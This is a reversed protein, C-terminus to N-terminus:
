LNNRIEGKVIGAIKRCRHIRTEEKKADLIYSIYRRRTSPTEKEFAEMAEDEMLVEAIFDPVEVPKSKAQKEKEIEEDLNDLWAMDFFKLGHETMREQELLDRVRIKNSLSWNSTKLRPAFYQLFRKDDCKHTVADIWGYCLASRVAEEYIIGEEEYGKKYMYIDMGDALDHNIKLWAEFSASDEFYLPEGM